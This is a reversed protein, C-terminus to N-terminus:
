VELPFGRRRFHKKGQRVQPSTLKQCKKKYHKAWKNAKTAPVTVVPRTFFWRIQSQGGGEM